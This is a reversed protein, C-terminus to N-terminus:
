LLMLNRAPNEAYIIKDAATQIVQMLTGIDSPKVAYGVAGLKKSKEIDSPNKSTSFIVVPINKLREKKKLARLVFFGDKLPMNLDLFILDPSMIFDCDLYSIVEEASKFDNYLINTYTEHIVASFVMRDDEDDDVFIINKFNSM